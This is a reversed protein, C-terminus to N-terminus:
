VSAVFYGGSYYLILGNSGRHNPEIWCKHFKLGNIEFDYFGAEIENEDYFWLQPAIFRNFKFDVSQNKLFL